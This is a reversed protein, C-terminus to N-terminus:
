PSSSSLRPRGSSSGESISQSPSAVHSPLCIPQSSKIMELQASRSRSGSGETSAVRAAYLTTSGALRDDFFPKSLFPAWEPSPNRANWIELWALATSGPTFNLEQPESAYKKVITRSRRHRSQPLHRCRCPHPPEAELPFINYGQRAALEAIVVLPEIPSPRTTCPSNTAPWRSRSRATPTLSASLPPTPPSATNFSSSQRELHRGGRYRSPRPLLLSQQPQHRLGSDGDLLKKRPKIFGPSSRMASPPSQTNARQSHRLRLTRPIRHDVRMRVLTATAIQRRLQAHRPRAAWPLLIYPPRLESRGPRRHAPLPQRRLATVRQVNSM